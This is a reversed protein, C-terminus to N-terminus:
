LTSSLTFVEAEVSAGVPELAPQEDIISNWSKAFVFMMGKICEPGIGRSRSLEDILRRGCCCCADCSRAFVAKHDELFDHMVEVARAADKSATEYIGKTIAPIVDPKLTLSLKRDFKRADHFNDNVRVKHITEQFLEVDLWSLSVTRTHGQWGPHVILKAPPDGDCILRLSVPPRRTFPQEKDELMKLFLLTAKAQFGEITEANDAFVQTTATRIARWEYTRVSM